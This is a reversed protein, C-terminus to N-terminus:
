CPWMYVAGSQTVAVSQSGKAEIKVIPDKRNFDLININPVEEKHGLGHQGQSNSGWM